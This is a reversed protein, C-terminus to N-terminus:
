VWCPRFLVQFRAARPGARLPFGSASRMRGTGQPIGQAALREPEGTERAVTGLLDLDPQESFGERVQEKRELGVEPAAKAWTNERWRFWLLPREPGKRGAM